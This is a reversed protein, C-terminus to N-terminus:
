WSQVAILNEQFNNTGSIRIFELEGSVLCNVSFMLESIAKQSLEYMQTTQLVLLHKYEVYLFIYIYKKRDPNEKVVM